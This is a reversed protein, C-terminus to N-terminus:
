PDAADRLRRLNFTGYVFSLDVAEPVMGDPNVWIRAHLPRKPVRGEANAVEEAKLVLCHGARGPARGEGAHVVRVRKVRSRDCVDWERQVAPAWAVTRAVYLLSLLTQTEASPLVFNESSSTVRDTYRGARKMPDLVILQSRRHGNEMREAEFKRARLSGGAFWAAFVSRMPFFTEVVGRSKLTLGARWDAGDRDIKATAEAAAFVGWHIVYRLEEGETWPVPGAVVSGALGLSALLM